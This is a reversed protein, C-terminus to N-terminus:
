GHLRRYASGWATLAHSKHLCQVFGDMNMMKLDLQKMWHKM